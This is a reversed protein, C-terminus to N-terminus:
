YYNYVYFYRGQHSSAVLWHGVVRHTWGMALTLNEFHIDLTKANSTSLSMELTFFAVLQHRALILDSLHSLQFSLRPLTKVKLFNDKSKIVLHRNM